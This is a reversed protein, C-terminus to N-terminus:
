IGWKMGDKRYLKSGMHPLSKSVQADFHCVKSKSDEMRAQM